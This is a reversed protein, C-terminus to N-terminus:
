LGDNDHRRESLERRREGKSASDNGSRNLQTLGAAM